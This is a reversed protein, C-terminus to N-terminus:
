DVGGLMARKPPAFVRLLESEWALHVAYIAKGSADREPGVNPESTVKLDVAFEKLGIVWLRAIFHSQVLARVGVSCQLIVGFSKGCSGIM